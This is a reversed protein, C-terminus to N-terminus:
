ESLVSLREAVNGDPNQIAVWTSLSALLLLFAVAVSQMKWSMELARRHMTM